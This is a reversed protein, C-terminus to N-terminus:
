EAEEAPDYEDLESDDIDGDERSRGAAIQPVALYIDIPAVRMSQAAQVAMEEDVPTISYIAGPGYFRTFAPKEPYRGAAPLAPVDVRLFGQGAITQESVRGAIRTHGFIEIIAFTEFPAATPDPM